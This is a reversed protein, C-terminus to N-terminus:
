GRNRGLSKRIGVFGKDGQSLDYPSPADPDQRKRGKRSGDAHWELDKLMRELELWDTKNYGDQAIARTWLRHFVQMMPTM